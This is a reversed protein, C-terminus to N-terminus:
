LRFVQYQGTENNYDSLPVAAHDRGFQQLFLVCAPFKNAGLRWLHRRNLLSHAKGTQNQVPAEGLSRKKYAKVRYQGCMPVPLKHPAARVLTGTRM